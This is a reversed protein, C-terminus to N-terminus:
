KLVELTWPRVDACVFSATQQYLGGCVSLYRDGDFERRDTRFVFRPQLALLVFSLLGGLLTV